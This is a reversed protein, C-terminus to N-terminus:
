DHYLQILRLSLLTLPRSQGLTVFLLQFLQLNTTSFSMLIHLVIIIYGGGERTHYRSTPKCRRRASAHVQAIDKRRKCRPSRDLATASLPQQPYLIKVGLATLRFPGTPNLIVQLPKAQIPVLPAGLPAAHIGWATLAYSALRILLTQLPQLPHTHAISACTPPGIYEGSLGWM